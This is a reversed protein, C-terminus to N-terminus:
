VNEIFHVINKAQVILLLLFVKTWGDKEVISM